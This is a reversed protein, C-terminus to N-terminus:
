DVLKPTFRGQEELWVCVVLWLWHLLLILVIGEDYHGFSTSVNCLLSFAALRLFLSFLFLHMTAIRVRACFYINVFFEDSVVLIGREVVHADDLYSISLHAM